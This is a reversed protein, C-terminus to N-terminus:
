TKRMYKENKEIFALEEDYCKNCCLCDAEPHGEVAFIIMTNNKTLITGCFCKGESKQKM